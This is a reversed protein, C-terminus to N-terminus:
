PAGPRRNTPATLPEDSELAQKAQRAYISDPVHELYREWTQAALGPEDVSAYIQALVRYSSEVLPDSEIARELAQVAGNFNGSAHLGDALSQLRIPNRPEVKVVHEFLETALETRGRLLFMRGLAHPIAVDTEPFDRMAPVLNRLAAESEQQPSHSREALRAYALGLNRQALSGQPERWAKLKWLTEGRSPEERKRAISHDTFASHGSDYARRSPMHCGVCDQLPEPHRALATPSHCGQCKRRYHDSGDDPKGHPDHCTGCWLSDGSAQACRSAALQEVHSVVKFEPVGSSPSPQEYLYVSFVEELEMGPRFDGFTRNPNLIRAEGSLHCQECISDRARAPLKSPSLITDASPNALHERTPGHCRDCSIAEADFSPNGYQNLTGRIPRPRGAHCWVCEATVPREFEPHANDEYGPAVDWLGRRTYYSIPSQFLHRGRAVLYGFAHNGSGIVFEVRNESDWGDREVRQLMGRATSEVVFRSGSFEHSFSADLRHHSRSLSRGMGTELYAEVQKAHCATCPSDDAIGSGSLVTLMAALAFGLTRIRTKALDRFGHRPKLRSRRASALGTSHVRSRRTCPAAFRWRVDPGVWCDMRQSEYDAYRANDTFAPASLWRHHQHMTREGGLMAHSVLPLGPSTLSALAAVENRHPSLGRPGDVRAAMVGGKPGHSACPLEFHGAEQYGTAVYELGVGKM